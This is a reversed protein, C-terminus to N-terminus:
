VARAVPRSRPPRAQRARWEGPPRGEWKQFARFFSHADEFGLLYATENLELASHLLYHRALERRAEQTLRQFTTGEETLRRQLTRSSLRLERAVDDIGPRRGALLRKVVGKVQEGIARAALAQKLEAELQPAVMGFLDANHTVFPRDLDAKAFVIANQRAGIRADCGFHTEYM